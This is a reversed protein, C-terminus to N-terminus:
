GIESRSSIITLLVRIISGIWFVIKDHYLCTVDISVCEIVILHLVKQTTCSSSKNIWGSVIGIHLAIDLVV